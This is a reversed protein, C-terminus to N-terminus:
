ENSILKSTSFLLLSGAQYTLTRDPHGRQYVSVSYKYLSALSKEWRCQRIFASPLRPATQLSQVKLSPSLTTRMPEMSKEMTQFMALLRPGQHPSLTPASLWNGADDPADGELLPSLCIMCEDHDGGSAITKTHSSSHHSSAMKRSHHSSM